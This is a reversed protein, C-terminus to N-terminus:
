TCGMKIGMRCLLSWSWYRRANSVDVVNSADVDLKIVKSLGQPIVLVHQADVAHDKFYVTEVVSGLGEVGTSGEM